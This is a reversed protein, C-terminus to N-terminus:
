RPLGLVRQAIVNLQIEITGGGILVAPVGLYDEAYPLEPGGLCGLPGLLGLVARAGDRQAIAHFVKRVSAIGAVESGGMRSLADRLNLAAVSCERATNRGLTRVADDRTCAHDGREILTRVLAASGHGFDANGMASREHSLTGVALRWGDGPEGVVCDDPVFVEDLFVEHFEWVGTAQRVRRVEVGPARMPLLFYTLGAHKAVDPDTRALCVGWDAEAAQTNWVKQGTLRWGGDVRVARTTLGALDSGAGPESFLQCWVIRGRLTPTVFRDHQAVTGNAILSPLVWDGIGLRPPTLGRGRFEADIVAQERPGAGLGFPAPYHPAVLGADALRARRAGGRPPAWGASPQEDDPMGLVDDLVVGVRARLDPLTGPEVFSFDREALLAIRGLRDAWTDEAGALAAISIARRWYLHADHEWSFGIAGLLGICELAQDVVAPLAAVAAHAAALERQQAPQGAARAADWAAAKIVEARVLMLAARHQVAQFTGVARGFQTRVRVYGVATDLCWAAIGSAEAALLSIRILEVDASGVGSLVSNAAVPHETLRLRGVSRTLDISEGAVVAGTSGDVTAAACVVAGRVASDRVSADHAAADLTAADLTAVDCAVADDAVADLTAADRAAVDFAAAGCSATDLAAAGRSAADFNAAARTVGEGPAVGRIAGDRTAADSTVGDGSAAARAVGDGPVVGRIAGDRTVADSTVGNGSAAARAVGDGPVVGRIAGDRTVADSTVGDGSAAARIAEDTAAAHPATNLTTTDLWFWLPETSGPKQAAVVIMSATPLGIAPDSLGSVVWEGNRHHATLTGGTCLAGTAGAAFAALLDHNEDATAAVSGALITPLYPGPLLARGFQEVVVALTDLGCEDGGFREPLHMAHLGQRVIQQWLQQHADAEGLRDRTVSLPAHRQAFAAM